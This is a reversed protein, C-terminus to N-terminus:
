LGPREKRAFIRYVLGDFHPHREELVLRYDELHFSLEAYEDPDLALYDPRTLELLEYAPTGEALARYAAPSALGKSDFIRRESVYGLIGINGAMVVADRPSNAALWRAAALHVANGPADQRLWPYRLAALTPYALLFACLTLLAAAALRGHPERLRALLFALGACGLVVLSVEIAVQYRRYLTGGTAEYAFAFLPLHLSLVRLVFRLRPHPDAKRWAMMAGVLAAPLWPSFVLLRLADGGFPEPPYILYRARASLPVVDGYAALAFLFWPAATAACAVAFRWPVRREQLLAVIAFGALVILADLRCVIALAAAVGSLGHRGTAFLAFALLTLLVLLSFEMGTGSWYLINTHLLFAAPALLQFLPWSRGLRILLVCIAADCGANFLVASWLPDLGLAAPLAMLLAYLPSSTGLFPEGSADGPNYVLGLGSALNRAYRLTILSDDFLHDVGAGLGRHFCYVLRSALALLAAGLM